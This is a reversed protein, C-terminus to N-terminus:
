WHDEPAKQWRVGGPLGGGDLDFFEHVALRAADFPIAASAPFRCEPGVGSNWSLLFDTDTRDGETWWTGPDDGRVLSCAIAAVGAASNMDFVMQNDYAGYPLPKVSPLVTLRPNHDIVPACSVLLDMAHDIGSHDSLELTERFYGTSVTLGVHHRHRPPGARASRCVYGSPSPSDPATPLNTLAEFDDFAREM